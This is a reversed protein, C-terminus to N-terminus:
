NTKRSVRKKFELPILLLKRHRGNQSVKVWNSGIDTVTQGDLVDGVRAVVGNIIARRSLESIIISTLLLDKDANVQREGDFVFNPPETPDKFESAALDLAKLAFILGIVFFKYKFM